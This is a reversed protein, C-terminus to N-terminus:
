AGALERLKALDARAAEVGARHRELADSHGALWQGRDAEARVIDAEIRAVEKDRIAAFEKIAHDQRDIDAAAAGQPKYGGMKGRKQWDDQGKDFLDKKRQQASLIRENCEQAAADMQVRREAQDREHREAVRPSDEEMNALARERTHLEEELKPIGYRAKLRDAFRMTRDLRANVAEDTEDGEYGSQFTIQRDDTLGVTISLATAIVKEVVPERLPKINSEPM